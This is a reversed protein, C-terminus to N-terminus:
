GRNNEIEEDFEFEVDFELDNGNEYSEEIENLRNHMYEGAESGGKVEHNSGVSDPSERNQQGGELGIAAHENGSIEPSPGMTRLTSNDSATESDRTESGNRDQNHQSPAKAADTFPEKAGEIQDLKSDVYSDIEIGKAHSTTREDAM